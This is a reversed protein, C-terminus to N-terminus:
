QLQPSYHAAVLYPYLYSSPYFFKKMTVYIKFTQEAFRHQLHLPIPHQIQFSSYLYLHKQFNIRQLDITYQRFLSSYIYTFILITIFIYKMRM